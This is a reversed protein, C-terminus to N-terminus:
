VVTPLNHNCACACILSGFSGLAGGSAHCRAGPLEEPGAAAPGQGAGVGLCLGGADHQRARRPVRRSLIAGPWSPLIGNQFLHAMNLSGDSRQLQPLIPKTPPRAQAAAM